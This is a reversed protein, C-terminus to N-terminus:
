TKSKLLLRYLKKYQESLRSKNDIIVGHETFLTKEKSLEHCVKWINTCSAKHKQHKVYEIAKCNKQLRSASYVLHIRVSKNVLCLSFIAIDSKRKLLESSLELYTWIMLKTSNKDRCVSIKFYGEVLPKEHNKNNEDYDSTIKKDM